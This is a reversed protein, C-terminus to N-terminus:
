SRKEKIFSSQKLHNMLQLCVKDITRGKGGKKYRTAVGRKILNRDIVVEKNELNRLRALEKAEKSMIGKTVYLGFERKYEEATMNHKYYVHTMLKKFSKGCIHCYYNGYKDQKLEGPKPLDETIDTFYKM